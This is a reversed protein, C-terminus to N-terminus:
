EHSLKFGLSKTRPSVKNWPCWYWANSLASTGGSFIPNFSINLLSYFVRGGLYNRWSLKFFFLLWVQIMYFAFHEIRQFQGTWSFIYTSILPTSSGWEFALWVAEGCSTLTERRIVLLALIIISLAIFCFLILCLSSLLM